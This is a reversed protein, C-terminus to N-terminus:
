YDHNFLYTSWASCKHCHGSLIILRCLRYCLWLYKYLNFFSFSINALAFDSIDFLLLDTWYKVHYFTILYSTFWFCFTHAIHQLMQNIIMFGCYCLKIAYRVHKVSIPCYHLFCRPTALGCLNQAVLWLPLKLKLIQPLIITNIITISKFQQGEWFYIFWCVSFETTWM